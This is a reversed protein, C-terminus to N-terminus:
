KLCFVAYSISLLRTPEPHTYSVPALEGFAPRAIGSPEELRDDHQARVLSLYERRRGPREVRLDDPLEDCREDRRDEDVPQLDRQSQRAAGSVTATEFLSFPSIRSVAARAPPSTSSGCCLPGGGIGNTTVRRALRAHRSGQGQLWLLPTARQAWSRAM